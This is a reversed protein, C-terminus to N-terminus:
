IAEELKYQDNHKQMTDALMRALRRRAEALEDTTKNSKLCKVFSEFYLRELGKGSMCRLM